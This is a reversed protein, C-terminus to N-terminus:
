TAMFRSFKLGGPTCFETLRNGSEITSDVVRISASSEVCALEGEIIPISDVGGVLLLGGITCLRM